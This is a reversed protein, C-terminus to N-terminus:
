VAPAAPKWVLEVWSAYILCGNGGNGFTQQGLQKYQKGAILSNLVTTIDVMGVRPKAYVEGQQRIAAVEVLNSPGSDCHVLRVGTPSAPDSVQPNWVL